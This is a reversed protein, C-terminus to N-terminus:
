LIEILVGAKEKDVKYGNFVPIIFDASDDELWGFEQMLDCPLQCANLYDFKRKDKRIFYFAIKYPKEKNEIMKLFEKKQKLWYIQTKAKYKFVLDSNILFTKSGRKVIRKSNKSSPVNNPIYIM